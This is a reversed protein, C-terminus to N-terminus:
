VKSQQDVKAGEDLLLEVVEKHGKLSALQLPTARDQILSVIFCYYDTHVYLWCRYVHISTLQGFLWAPIHSCIITVQCNNHHMLHM